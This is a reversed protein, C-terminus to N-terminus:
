NEQCHVAAISELNIYMMQPYGRVWELGVIDNNAGKNVVISDCVFKVPTSSNKLYLTVSFKRKKSQFLNLM